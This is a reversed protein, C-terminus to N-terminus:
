TVVFTQRAGWHVHAFQALINETLFRISLSRIRVNFDQWLISFLFLVVRTPVKSNQTRM